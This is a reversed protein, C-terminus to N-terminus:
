ETNNRKVPKFWFRYADGFKKKTWKGNIDKSDTLTLDDGDRKSIFKPLNEPTLYEWLEEKRPNRNKLIQRLAMYAAKLMPAIGTEERENDKMLWPIPLGDPTNTPPETTPPQVSATELMNNLYRPTDLLPYSLIGKDLDAYIGKLQEQFWHSIQIELDYIRPPHRRPLWEDRTDMMRIEPPHPYTMSQPIGEICDRLEGNEDPRMWAFPYSFCRIVRPAEPADMFGLTPQSRRAALMRWQKVLKSYSSSVNFNRIAEALDNVHIKAKVQYEIPSSEFHVTSEIEPTPISYIKLGGSYISDLLDFVVYRRRNKFNFAHPHDTNIKDRFPYYLLAVQWLALTETISDKLIGWVPHQLEEPINALIGKCRDAHIKRCLFDHEHLNLPKFYDEDEWDDHFSGAM